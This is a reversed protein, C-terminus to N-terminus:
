RRSRLHETISRFDDFDDVAPDGATKGKKEPLFDLSSRRAFLGKESSKTFRELDLSAFGSFVAIAPASPLTSIQVGCHRPIFRLASIPRKVFDDLRIALGRCQLLDFLARAAPHGCKDKDASYQM